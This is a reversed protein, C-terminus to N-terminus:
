KFHKPVRESVPNVVVSSWASHHAVLHGGHLLGIGVVVAPLEGPLLLRDAGSQTVVPSTETLSSLM